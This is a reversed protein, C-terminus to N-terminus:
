LWRTWAQLALARVWRDGRGRVQSWTRGTTESVLEYYTSTSSGRRLVWGCLSADEAHVYDTLQVVYCWNRLEKYPPLRRAVLLRRLEQSSKMGLSTAARSITMGLDCSKLMPLMDSARDMVAAWAEDVESSTLRGPLEDDQPSMM